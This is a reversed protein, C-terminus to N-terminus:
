DFNQLTGVLWCVLTTIGGPTHQYEFSLQKLSAEEVLICCFSSLVSYIILFAMVKYCLLLSPMSPLHQPNAILSEFAM